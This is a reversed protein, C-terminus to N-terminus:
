ATKDLREILGINFLFDLLEYYFNGSELDEYTIRLLPIKNEKCYNTKIDDRIGCNQYNEFASAKSCNNFNFPIFHQIGDFEILGVMKDDDFLAFDFPLALINKCNEIRYQEVFQYKYKKLFKYILDEGRSRKMCSCSYTSGSLLNGQRVIKTNGCDCKCEWDIYVNNKNSGRKRGILKTVTLYGFRRNTLDLNYESKKCGCSTARGKHLVEQSYTVENGCKCKCKWYTANRKATIEENLRIVTLYGFTEGILDQMMRCKKCGNRKDSLLQSRGVIQITHYPCSCECLYSGSKIQKLVNWKNYLNGVAINKGIKTYQNKAFHNQKQICGCNTSAGRKLNSINVMERKGCFCECLIKEDINNSDIVTWKGFIDDNKVVKFLCKGCCSSAGNKLNKEDVYKITKNVCRCQCKYKRYGNKQEFDNEDLIIWNGYNGGTHIDGYKKVM